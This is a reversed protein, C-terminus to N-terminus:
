IVTNSFFLLAKAPLSILTTVSAPDQSIVRKESVTELQAHKFKMGASSVRAILRSQSTPQESQKIDELRQLLSNGSRTVILAFCKFVCYFRTPPLLSFFSLGFCNQCTLNIRVTWCLFYVQLNIQSPKEAGGKWPSSGYVPQRQSPPPPHACYTNPLHMM